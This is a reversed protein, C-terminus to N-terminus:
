TLLHSYLFPLVTSKPPTVSPPPFMTPQSSAWLTPFFKASETVGLLAPSYQASLVHVLDQQVGFFAGTVCVKVKM